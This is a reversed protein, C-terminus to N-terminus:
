EKNSESDADEVTLPSSVFMATARSLSDESSRWKGIDLPATRRTSSGPNRDPEQPAAEKGRSTGLVGMLVVGLTGGVM